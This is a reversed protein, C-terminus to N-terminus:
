HGSQETRSSFEPWVVDDDEEEREGMFGSDAGRETVPGEAATGGWRHSKPTRQISAIFLAPQANRSFLLVRLYAPFHLPFYRATSSCRSLPDSVGEM